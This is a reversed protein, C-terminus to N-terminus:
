TCCTAASPAPSPLPLPARYRRSFKAVSGGGYIAPDTAVFRHDVVLRGDYVIGCDNVAKFFRPDVDREGACLLLSARVHVTEHTPLPALATGGEGAEEKSDSGFSFGRASGDGEASGSAASSGEDGEASKSEAASAGHRRLRRRVELDLGPPLSWLPAGDADLRADGPAAGATAMEGKVSLLEAGSIERVGAQELV